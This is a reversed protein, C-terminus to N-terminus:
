AGVVVSIASSAAVAKGNVKIAVAVKNGAIASIIGDDPVVTWASVDGGFTPATVSSATKYVLTGGKGGSINLVGKGSEDATMSLTLEGLTGGYQAAIAKKKNNLVFADYYVLGEVLHGAIGPADEHIKYDALKIPSTCAMPHTIVFSIGSAMRSSPVPIIAVGDVEGVQGKVLMDQAIDSAKIFSADQKLLSLYTPTVYAIRGVLPMEKDSINANREVFKVYANDSTIATVDVSDANDAMKVLRYSDVEPIIAGEIQRKLARAADRVGEPSDVANTKDITFTFSRKKGMTLEQTSDELESPTGYRNAGKAQYDNMPAVDFSYVKVTQAGVFDYDRNIAVDTLTGQKIVEDITNSYKTALNIAM